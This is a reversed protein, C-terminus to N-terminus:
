AGALRKILQVQGAHYIAHCTIGLVLDFPEPEGAARPGPSTHINTVAAPRPKKHAKSFGLIDPAPQPALHPHHDCASASLDRRTLVCFKRGVGAGTRVDARRVKPKVATPRSVRPVCAEIASRKRETRDNVKSKWWVVGRPAARTARHQTGVTM